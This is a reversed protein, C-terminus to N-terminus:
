DSWHTLLNSLMLDKPDYHEPKLLTAKKNIKLPQIKMRLRGISLSARIKKIQKLHWQDNSGFILEHYTLSSGPLLKARCALPPRIWLQVYVASSTQYVTWAGSISALTLSCGTNRRIHFRITGHLLWSWIPLKTCYSETQVSSVMDRYNARCVNRVLFIAKLVTSLHYRDRADEYPKM